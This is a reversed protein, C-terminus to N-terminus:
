TCTFVMSWAVGTFYKDPVTKVKPVNEDLFLLDLEIREVHIDENTYLLMM